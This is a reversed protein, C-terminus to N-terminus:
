PPPARAPGAPGPRFPCPPDRRSRGPRCPARARPRGDGAAAQPAAALGVQLQGARAAAVAPPGVDREQADGRALGGPVLHALASPQRAAGHRRHGLGPARVGRVAPDAAGAGAGMGQRPRLGPLPVRRAVAERAALPRLGGRRPVPGRVGAVIAADRGDWGGGVREPVIQLVAPALPILWEPTICSSALMPATMTWRSFTAPM